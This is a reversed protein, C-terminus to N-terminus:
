VIVHIVIHIASNNRTSHMSIDRFKKMSNLTFLLFSYYKLNQILLQCPLHCEWFNM